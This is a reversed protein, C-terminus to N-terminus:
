GWCDGEQVDFSEDGDAPEFAPSSGKLVTNRIFSSFSQTQLDSMSPRYVNCQKWPLPPDSERAPQEKVVTEGNATPAVIEAKEGGSSQDSSIVASLRVEPPCIHEANPLKGEGPDVAKAESDRVDTSSPQIVIGSNVGPTPSPSVLANRVFDTSSTSVDNMRALSKNIDTVEVTEM